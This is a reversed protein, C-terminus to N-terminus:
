RDRATDDLTDHQRRGKISDVGMTRSDVVTQKVIAGPPEDLPSRDVLSGQGQLWTLRPVPSYQHLYRVYGHAM